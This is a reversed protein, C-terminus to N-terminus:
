REALQERQQDHPLQYLRQLVLLLLQVLLQPVLQAGPNVQHV